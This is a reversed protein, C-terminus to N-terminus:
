RNTSQSHEYMADMDDDSPPERHKMEDDAFIEAFEDKVEPAPAFEKNCRLCIGDVIIDFWHESSPCMAPIVPSPVQEITKM